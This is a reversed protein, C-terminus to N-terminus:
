GSPAPSSPSGASPSPSASPSAATLRNLEDLAKRLREQQRAYEAYDQRGFAEAAKKFADQAEASLRKIQAERDGAPPTDPPTQSSGTLAQDLAAQFTPAFGIQDGFGVFVRKLEPIKGGAGSQTSQVYVPQVYVFTGGVPLTLLNGLVVESGGQGLLTLEQSAGPDAQFTGARQVPGQIATNSPLRLVSFRGFTEPDNSVTVFAAMNPRSRATLPSTLQFAPATQGPFKAYLYYPPQAQNTTTARRGSPDTPVAWFDEERFFEAPDDIHYSAILDRQIKFLDEPYRVHALLGPSMESRPRLTGPFAREWTKLVPDQEDWRYLTVTGDYADVTAKVSNRIYNISRDAQAAGTADATLANLDVRESYPYGNSTTYGDVIWVIRGDVVAPYPDQDLELYPAVKRVRDRPERVFLIKSRSELAGSLLLYRSRFRLSFLLRRPMSGIGVGGKGTYTTVTDTGAAAPRDVEQQSTAVVSYAPAREGYYIRPEDIRITGTPPIDRLEFKPQGQPDVANTPAAVLGNGHTFVLHENIWNRQNTALGGHDIERAGVVYTVTRGNVEYRDIDLDDPFGYYGRIQQLSEWADRLHNPDLLRANGVTDRDARIQAVPVKPQADYDTYTVDDGTRLRYAARTATINRKIYPAERQIENPKVQLQQVALPYLGGVVLSSALMLGLGTGPLVWGSRFLTALFLLGCIVAIVTLVKLAPLQANVDTYSAGTVKGRPSFALGFQDLHYAYAKLLVFLGLLVSLHVRTATVVREGRTQLRIGGYLYHTAASVVISLTLATFLFGVVLRQFPYTFAFYSIDRGFEPDKVGFPVANRWQLWTQWRAAAAIGALLGAALSIGLILWRALPTVVQRYRDLNRQELSAPRFPPRLRYAVVLNTGVALAMLTGFVVFLLVRTRLVTDFVGTFGVEGFWLRDTYLQTFVLLLVVAVLLGGVVRGLLTSRANLAPIAM